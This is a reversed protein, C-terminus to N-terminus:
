KKIKLIDKLEYPLLTHARWEYVFDTLKKIKTEREKSGEMTELIGVLHKSYSLKAMMIIELASQDIPKESTWMSNIADNYQSSKDPSIIFETYLSPATLTDVHQAFQQLTTPNITGTTMLEKFGKAFVKRKLGGLSCKIRNHHRSNESEKSKNYYISHPDYMRDEPINLNLKMFQRWKYPHNTLADNAKVQSSWLKQVTLSPTIQHNRVDLNVTKGLDNPIQGTEAAAIMAKLIYHVSLRGIVIVSLTQLSMGPFLTMTKFFTDDVNLLEAHWPYNFSGVFANFRPHQLADAAGTARDQLEQSMAPIARMGENSFKVRFCSGISYYQRSPTSSWVIISPQDKDVNYDDGMEMLRQIQQYLDVKTYVPAAQADPNVMNIKTFHSYVYALLRRSPSKKWGPDTVPDTPNTTGDRFCITM